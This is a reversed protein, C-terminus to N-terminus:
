NMREIKGTVANVCINVVADKESVEKLLEQDEIWIRSPSYIHWVPVLEVKNETENFLPYYLFEVETLVIKNSGLIKGNNLNAELIKEVQEWSLLEIYEEKWDVAGLCAEMELSAVGASCVKARGFQYMVKSSATGVEHVGGMGEYSPTFKMDYYVFNEKQYMTIEYVSIETMGVKKLKALLINEAEKIPFIESGVHDSRNTGTVLPEEEVEYASHCQEELNEDTYYAATGNVFGAEKQGDTVAYWSGDGFVSVEAREPSNENEEKAQEAERQREESLDRIEGSASELFAELLEMNLTSNEKLVMHYVNEPIYPAPAEIRIGNEETGILCDIEEMDRDIGSETGTSEVIDAVENEVSDKAHLIGDNTSGEPAKQCGCVAFSLFATVMIVRFIKKQM